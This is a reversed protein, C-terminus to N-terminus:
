SYLQFFDYSETCYGPAKIWDWGNGIPNCTTLDTDCDCQGSDKCISTCEFMQRYMIQRANRISCCGPKTELFQNCYTTIPDMPTWAKDVVCLYDPIDQCTGDHNACSNLIYEPEEKYRPFTATSIQILFIVIILFIFATKPTPNNKM